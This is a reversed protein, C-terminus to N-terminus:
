AQELEMYFEPSAALSAIESVPDAVLYQCDFSEIASRQSHHIRFLGDLETESFVKKMAKNLGCLKVSFSKAQGMSRFTLLVGLLGSSVFEISSFDIIVKNRCSQQLRDTLEKWVSEISLPDLITAVTFELILIDNEVKKNLYNM